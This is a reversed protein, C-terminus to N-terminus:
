QHYVGKMQTADIVGMVDCKGDSIKEALAGLIPGSTMVPSSVRIRGKSRAIRHAIRTALAEGHGPSFWARVKADGVRVPNPEVFGSQVVSETEWLQEFDETYREAVGASHVIVIVNEERSWSDDTWNTSGTWVEAGDRVVYKHHMLDPVGRIRQTPVDLSDLLEPDAHPPPPEPIPKDHDVNFALRVQVGRRQAELLADAVLKATDQELDFDYLALDLSKKAGSIFGAAYEAIELASQGGDRLTRLEIDPTAASRSTPSLSAESPSPSWGSRLSPMSAATSPM